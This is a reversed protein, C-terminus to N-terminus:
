SRTALARLFFATNAPREAMRRVLYGYWEDGYPVYVRMREGQDALRQQEDPRVGYLMQFEYSGQRRGQQVALASGIDVLRPDHTALMPYGSGAMLARACRVFSKDVEAKDQFAV